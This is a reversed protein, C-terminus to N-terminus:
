PLIFDIQIHELQSFSACHLTISSSTLHHSLLREHRRIYLQNRHDNSETLEYRNINVRAILDLISNYVQGNSLSSVRLLQGKNEQLFHSITELLLELIRVSSRAADIIGRFDFSNLVRIGEKFKTLKQNESSPISFTIAFFLFSNLSEEALSFISLSLWSSRSILLIMCSFKSIIRLRSLFRFLIDWIDASRFSLELLNLRSALFSRKLMHSWFYAVAMAIPATRKNINYM